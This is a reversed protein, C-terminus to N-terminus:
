ETEKLKDHKDIIDNYKDWSNFSTPLCNHAVVINEHYAAVFARIGHKGYHQINKEAQEIFGLPNDTELLMEGRPGCPLSSDSCKYIPDGVKWWCTQAAYVLRSSVGALAKITELSIRNTLKFEM